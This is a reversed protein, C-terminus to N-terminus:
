KRHGLDNGSIWALYLGILYFGAWVLYYLQEFGRTNSLAFPANAVFVFLALGWALIESMRLTAVNQKRVKFLAELQSRYLHRYISFPLGANNLYDQFAESTIQRVARRYELVRYGVYLLLLGSAPFIIIFRIGNAVSM